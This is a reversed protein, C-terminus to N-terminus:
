PARGSGLRRLLSWIYQDAQVVFVGSVVVVLGIVMRFTMEEGLFLWAWLAIQLPMTNAVMAQEFAKLYELAHNWLLYAFATNVVILWLLIAMGTITLRPLPEFAAPLFLLGGGIGLSIITLWLTGPVGDRSLDRVLIMQYAFSLAAGLAIVIGVAQGRAVDLPFFIYVGVLALGIGGAQLLSPRERLHLVGLVAVLLPILGQIFSATVAPIMTLSLFLLGNGLTYQAIGVGVLKAWRRLGLAQPLRQRRLALAFALLVLFGGFYRLGAFLFPPLEKLGWKILVFSSSWLITVLTAELSALLYPNIM